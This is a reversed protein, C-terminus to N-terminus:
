TLKIYWYLEIMLVMGWGLAALVFLLQNHILAVATIGTAIGILWSTVVLVALKM